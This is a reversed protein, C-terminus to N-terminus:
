NNWGYKFCKGYCLIYVKMKGMYVVFVIGIVFIYFGLLLFKFGLLLFRDDIVM